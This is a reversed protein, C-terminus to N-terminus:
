ERDFRLEQILQKNGVNALYIYVRFNGSATSLDGICYEAESGRSTGQHVQTFGKPSNDGFFSSVMAMADTKGYTDEEDLISLEVEADFYNSLVSVDGQALARSIDDIGGGASQAMLSPLVLLSVILTKM